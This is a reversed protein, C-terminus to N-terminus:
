HRHGIGMRVANEPPIWSRGGDLSIELFVDFFSEIQFQGRPATTIAAQGRSALTPSERVLVGEPFSAGRLDLTLLETEFVRTRGNRASLTIREAMHVQERIPYTTPGVTLEGAFTAFYDSTAAAGPRNPPDIASTFGGHSDCVLEVTGGATNWVHATGGHYAGELPPLSDEPALIGPNQVAAWSVAALIVTALALAARRAVTM